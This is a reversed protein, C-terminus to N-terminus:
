GTIGFQGNKVMDFSNAVSPAKDCSSDLRSLSAPRYEGSCDAEAPRVATSLLFEFM